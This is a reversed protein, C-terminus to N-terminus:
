LIIDNCVVSSYLSTLARVEAEAGALFEM